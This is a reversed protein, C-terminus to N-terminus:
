VLDVQVIHRARREAHRDRAEGRRLSREAFLGGAFRSGLAGNPAARLQGAAVSVNTPYEPWRHRTLRFRPLRRFGFFDAPPVIPSPFIGARAPSGGPMESAASFFASCNMSASSPARLRRDPKAPFKVVVTATTIDSKWRYAAMAPAQGNPQAGIM